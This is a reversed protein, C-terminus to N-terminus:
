RSPNFKVSVIHRPAHHVNCEFALLFSKDCVLSIEALHSQGFALAHCSVLIKSNCVLISSVLSILVLSVRAPRIPDQFHRSPSGRQRCPSLM